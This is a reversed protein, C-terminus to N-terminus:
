KEPAQNKKPKLPIGIWLGERIEGPKENSPLECGVLSVSLIHKKELNTRKM